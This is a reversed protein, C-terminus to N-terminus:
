HFGKQPGLAKTLELRPNGLEGPVANGLVVALSCRSDVTEVVPSVHLYRLGFVMADRERVM